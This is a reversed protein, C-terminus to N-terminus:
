RGMQGANELLFGADGDALVDTLPFDVHGFIQKAETVIVECVNGGHQGIGGLAM